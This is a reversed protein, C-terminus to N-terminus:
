PDIECGERTHTHAHTHAYIYHICIYCHLRTYVGGISTLYSLMVFVHYFVTARDSSWELYHTFYLVLIARMGYYAFRESFENGFIFFVGKPYRSCAAPFPTPHAPSTLPLSVLLLLRRHTPLTASM